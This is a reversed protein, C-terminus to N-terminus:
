QLASKLSTNKEGLIKVFGEEDGSCRASPVAKFPFKGVKLALSGEKAGEETLGVCAVEPWTYMVNPIM